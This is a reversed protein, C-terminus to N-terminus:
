WEPNKLLKCKGQFGSNVRFHKVTNFYKEDNQMKSCSASARFFLTHRSNLTKFIYKIDNLIKSCSASARFVLTARLNNVTNFYKKVNLIKSCGANARFVLTARCNNVTNFYNKDNLIKSCSASERFVTQGSFKWSPPRAAEGRVGRRTRRHNYGVMHICKIM